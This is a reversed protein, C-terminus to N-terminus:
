DGEFCNNNTLIFAFFDIAAPNASPKATAAAGACVL